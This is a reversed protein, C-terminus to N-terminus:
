YLAIVALIKKAVRENRDRNIELGLEEVEVKGLYDVVESVSKGRAISAVRVVYKDYENILKPNDNIGIPDWESFLIGRVANLIRDAM